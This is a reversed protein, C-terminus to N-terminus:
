ENKLQKGEYEINVSHKPLGRLSSAYEDPVSFHKKFACIVFEIRQIEFQRSNGDNMFYGAETGNNLINTIIADYNLRQKKRKEMISREKKHVPRM